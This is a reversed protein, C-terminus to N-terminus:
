RRTLIRADRGSIPVRLYYYFIHECCVGRVLAHGNWPCGCVRYYYYYRTFM